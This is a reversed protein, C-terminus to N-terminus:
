LFVFFLGFVVFLVLVKKNVAHGQEFYKSSGVGTISMSELARQKQKGPASTHASGAEEGEPICDARGRGRCSERRKGEGEGCETRLGFDM